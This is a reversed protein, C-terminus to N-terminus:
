LFGWGNLRQQTVEMNSQYDGNEPDLRLANQYAELALRDKGLRSYAFGLRGYAKSYNPDYRLAMRCDAAAKEYDALRSHAAARNSYFVPNTADLSIASRPAGLSNTM